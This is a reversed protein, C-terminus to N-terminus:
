RRYSISQARTLLRSGAVSGVANNADSAEPTSGAAAKSARSAPTISITAILKRLVTGGASGPSLGTGQPPSHISRRSRSCASVGVAVSADDRWTERMWAPGCLGEGKSIGACVLGAGAPCPREANCDRGEGAPLPADLPLCRGVPQEAHVGYCRVGEPCDAATACAAGIPGAHVQCDMVDGDNIRAVRETSDLHYYAGYSNDGAGYEYVVLGRAHGVDFLETRNIGGADVTAFATAVDPVDSWASQRVADLV